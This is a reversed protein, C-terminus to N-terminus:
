RVIAAADEIAHSALPQRAIWRVVELEVPGIKESTADSQEGTMEDAGGAQVASAQRELGGVSPLQLAECESPRAVIQEQCRGAMPNQPSGEALRCVDRPQRDEGVQAS